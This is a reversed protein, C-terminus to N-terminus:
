STRLTSIPDVKAASRAPLYCAALAAVLVALCTLGFVLPDAPQVQYLVSTMLRTLAFATAAGTAMGVLALLGGRKVVLGILAHPSAGIAMRIGFEPMQQSVAYAVLGYVGVLALLAALGAFVSILVSLLRPRSLSTRVVEEMTQLKSIPQTADVEALERRISATLTTPDATASRLVFTMQPSPGQSLPGSIEYRPTDAASYTRVDGVVGVVEYWDPSGVSLRKGIPNEGPWCRRALSENVIVVQKSRADDRPTFFRGRILPIGMTQYYAGDVVRTEALPAQNAKWLTKGEVHFEANNGFARLPLLTIAGASQVGPIARLHELAAAFYIRVRDDTDYRAKPLAVDFALVREVVVGLGQHQLNILSKVTLGAGVLLTVSLAIEAVVLAAGARRSVLNGTSRGTEEKLADAPGGRAHLVPALGFLIGTAIAVGLTFLLVSGDIAISAMRPVVPPATAVFLRVGGWALALGVTAGALSLMVSETLLQRVLRGKTMGLATRVAVERRRAAARALLLNAVNACAILLVFAVSGFLVLLPTAADGVVQDRLPRVDIGHNTGHERALRHGLAIMERKAREVTVGTKLRGWTALFHTGRQREDLQRALPVFADAMRHTFGQPMVGVVTRPVEDLVLTQGIIRADKGFRREWFGYSLVTVKPGGPRDEDESFARGLVPNIGYVRFLSATANAIPVREPDGRGTLVASGGSSGGIVQFVRNQERWDVYKPYSAPCSDCDPQTDYITVLRDPEPYPLPKLLVSYVVSFVATNAGIGLGLALITMALFGPTKRFLRLGFRVDQWFGDM